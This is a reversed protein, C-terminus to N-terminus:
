LSLRVLQNINKVHISMEMAIGKHLIFISTRAWKQIIEYNM